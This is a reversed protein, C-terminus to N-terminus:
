PAVAFLPCKHNDLALQAAAQVPKVKKAFEPELEVRNSISKYACPVTSRERDFARAIQEGTARTLLRCLYIAVHRPEVHRRIRSKATLALVPVGYADSVTQQIIIIGKDYSASGVIASGTLTLIDACLDTLEKALERLRAQKLEISM